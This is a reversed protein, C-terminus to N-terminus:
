VALSESGVPIAGDTVDPEPPETGTAEYYDAKSYEAPSIANELEVFGAETVADAERADAALTILYEATDELNQRCGTGRGSWFASAGSLATRFTFENIDIGTLGNSCVDSIRLLETELSETHGRIEAAAADVVDPTIKLTDGM